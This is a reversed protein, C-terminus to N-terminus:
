KNRIFRSFANPNIYQGHSQMIRWLILMVSPSKINISYFRRERDEHLMLQRENISSLTLNNEDSGIEVYIKSCCSVRPAENGDLGM